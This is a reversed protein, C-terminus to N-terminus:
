LSSDTAFTPDQSPAVQEQDELYDEEEDEQFCLAQQALIAALQLIM